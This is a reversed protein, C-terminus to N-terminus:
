PLSFLTSLRPTPLDGRCSELPRDFRPARRHYVVGARSGGCRPTQTARTSDWLALLRRLQSIAGRGQDRIGDGHAAKGHLGRGLVQLCCSAFRM